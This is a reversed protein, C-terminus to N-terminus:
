RVGVARLREPAREVDGAHNRWVHMAGYARWPRWTEFDPAERRLVLDGEPYADPWHLARMAVYQATWSGIGPLELLREIAREVDAHPALVVDEREVARALARIADARAKPVGISFASRAVTRADPFTFRLDAHPTRIPTGLAEALRGGLTSAGKVSVQQGLIARVAVEFGDFAGPLRLGPHRMVLPRLRRDRELHAAVAVPHADLDFLTRLRAKVPLLVSALSLSVEARLANRTPDPRVVVFGKQGEIRITRRYAGGDVSEVGPIARAALFDLLSQWDLPPRYDLRLVVGASAEAGRTKRVQSPPRGFRHRFLANFRRVSGFGSAFAVDAIPLATDHLLQKALGIRKSQALEVPSVGLEKRLTRRLHRSTVGLARALDELSEEAGAEIRGAAAAALRSSADIIANGPALEPRCRFCARFGDREAEAARRYFRVRDRGPTRAPCVPRCYIGTTTVGVFFVGDFRPDRSVIARYWTDEM